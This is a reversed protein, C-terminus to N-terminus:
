SDIVEGLGYRAYVDAEGPLATLETNDRLEGDVRLMRQALRCIFLGRLM